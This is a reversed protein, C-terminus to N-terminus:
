VCTLFEHEDWDTSRCSSFWDDGEFYRFRWDFDGVLLWCEMALNIRGSWLTWFRELAEAPSTFVFDPLTMRLFFDTVLAPEYIHGSFDKDRNGIDPVNSWMLKNFQHQLLFRTLSKDAATAGCTCRLHASPNKNLCVFDVDCWQSSKRLGQWKNRSAVKGINSSELQTWAAQTPSIERHGLCISWLLPQPGAARTFM